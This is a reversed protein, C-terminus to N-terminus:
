KATARDMREIEALILAGARVLDRRKDKPKFWSRAWGTYAWIRGIIDQDGDVMRSRVSGSIAYAAAALSLAGDTHEDDHQATWHEVMMQRHREEMISHLAQVGATQRNDWFFKADNNM